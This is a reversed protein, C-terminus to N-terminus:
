TCTCTCVLVVVWPIYIYIVYFSFVMYFFTVVVYTKFCPSTCVRSKYTHNICDQFFVDEQGSTGGVVDDEVRAM